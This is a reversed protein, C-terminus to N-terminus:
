APELTRRFMDFLREWHLETAAKNYAKRAPFAFGHQCQPYIEISANIQTRDIIAQLEELESTQVYKDHEACGFYMEGRIRDALLHPSDPKDTVLHVGYLSAAAAVREPYAGALRFVFPGSMCYGVIALRGKRAAADADIFGFLAASDEVVMTNSLGAILRWLEQFKDYYAPDQMRTQDFDVSRHERYYLNPMIVYYGVAAIRRCMDSLEERLGVSDMYMVVVPFPGEREPHFVYTNMLGAETRIEVLREHM